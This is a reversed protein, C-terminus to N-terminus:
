STSYGGVRGGCRGGFISLIDEDRGLIRVGDSGLTFGGGSRLTGVEVGCRYGVLCVRWWCGQGMTTVVEATISVLVPALGEIWVRREPGSFAFQSMEVLLLKEAQYLTSTFGM